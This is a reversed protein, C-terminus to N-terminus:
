NIPRKKLLRLISSQYNSIFSDKLLKNKNDYRKFFSNKKKKFKIFEKNLIKNLKKFDDPNFFICNKDRQEIHVDINSLIIKKNMAKAQEVTNSWGESKSPNILAISYYMLSVMDIYPIVNLMRYNNKLKKELIYNKIKKIYRPHRHDSFNGTSIIQFKVKKINEFLAKLVVLHNKHKWYHNPLFFYNSKIKYKKKLYSFPKLESYSPVDVSHKILLSNKAAQINISRLDRKVTNSSVLIKTSFHNCFFVRARRIAKDLFSFNEPLHLEQFDPIWPYNLIKSKKGIWGSHSLIKIDNKELFNDIYFNKNFIIILIKNFIKRLLNSRSVLQTEIIELKSIFEDQLLEEKKDTIIVPIIKKDSFNDLCKFLNKYYNYGGLWKSSKFNIIFGVKIM